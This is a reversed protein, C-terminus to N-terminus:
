DRAERKVSFWYKLCDSWQRAVVINENGKGLCVRLFYRKKRVDDAVENGPDRKKGGFHKQRSFSLGQSRPQM